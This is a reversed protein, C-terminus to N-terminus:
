ETDYDEGNVLKRINEVGDLLDSISIRDNIRLIADAFVETIDARLFWPQKWLKPHHVANTGIVYSLLGEEVARNFDDIAPDNFFPLSAAVTITKAGSEKVFRVSKLMTGGTDIMDDTMLVDKGSVDGLLKLDIINNDSASTSIHNYDRQKYLMALPVSLASSFYRNRDIAGTDPSVVVLNKTILNHDKMEKVIQYSSHLNELIAHSFSNQIERSHIDLTVIRKVGLNELMHCVMSATLGERKTKKHQRSYPFTGLIVNVEEASANNASDIATFLSMLNDNISGTKRNAVDQVIFVDNGRVPDNLVTKTEGNKFIPFDASVLHTRKNRKKLWSYLGNTFNNAGPCAILNLDRDM